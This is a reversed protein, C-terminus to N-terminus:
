YNPGRSDDWEEAVEHPRWKLDIESGSERLWGIGFLEGDPQYEPLEQRQTELAEFYGIVREYEEYAPILVHELESRLRILNKTKNKFLISVCSVAFM